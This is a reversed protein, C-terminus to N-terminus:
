ELYLAKGQSRVRAINNDPNMNHFEKFLEQIKDLTLLLNIKSVNKSYHM